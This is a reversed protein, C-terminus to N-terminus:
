YEKRQLEQHAAPARESKRAAGGLDLQGKQYVAGGGAAKYVLQVDVCLGVIHPYRLLRFQDAAL